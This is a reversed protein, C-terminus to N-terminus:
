LFPHHGEFSFTAGLISPDNKPHQNSHNLRTSAYPLFSEYKLRSFKLVAASELCQTTFVVMQKDRDCYFVLKGKTKKTKSCVNEKRGEREKKFVLIAGSVKRSLAVM